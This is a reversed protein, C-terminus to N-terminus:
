ETAPWLYTPNRPRLPAISDPALVPVHFGSNKLHPANEEPLLDTATESALGVDLVEIQHGQSLLWCEIDTVYDGAQTISDGLFVIRQVGDLSAPTSKAMSSMAVGEM